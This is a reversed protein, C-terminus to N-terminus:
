QHHHTKTAATAFHITFSVCSRRSFVFDHSVNTMIINPQLCQVDSHKCEGCWMFTLRMRSLSQILLCVPQCALVLLLHQSIVSNGYLITQNINQSHTIWKLLTLKNAFSCFFFVCVLSSDDNSNEIKIRIFQSM